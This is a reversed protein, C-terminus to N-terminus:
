FIFNQKQDMEWFHVPYTRGERLDCNKNLKKNLRTVFSIQWLSFRRKLERQMLLQQFLSDKRFHARYSKLYSQFLAQWCRYLLHPQLVINLFLWVSHSFARLMFLELSHSPQIGPNKAIEIWLIFSSDSYLAEFIMQSSLFSSGIEQSSFMSFGSKLMQTPTQTPPFVKMYM